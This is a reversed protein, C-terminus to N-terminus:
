EHKVGDPESPSPVSWDTLGILGLRGAAAEFAARARTLRRSLTGPGIGLTRGLEARTLGEAYALWLLERQDVPLADLVALVVASRHARDYRESADGRPDPPDRVVGPVWRRLWARRRHGRVTRWTIGWLWGQFRRPDELRHLQTLMALLADHALDEVPLTPGGLLRCWRHVDPQWLDLLRDLAACGRAQPEARIARILAETAVERTILAIQRESHARESLRAAAEEAALPLEIWPGALESLRASLADDTAASHILHLTAM